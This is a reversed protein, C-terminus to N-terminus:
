ATGSTPVVAATLVGITTTKGAGNPGLLGFIEGRRVRFSIDDVANVPAKPYRKVLQTVEIAAEPASADSMTPRREGVRRAPRISDYGICRPQALHLAPRSFCM